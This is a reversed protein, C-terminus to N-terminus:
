SLPRACDVGNSAPKRTPPLGLRLGQGLRVPDSQPSSQSSHGLIGRCASNPFFAPALLPFFPKAARAAGNRIIAPGQQQRSSALADLRDRREVRCGPDRGLWPIAAKRQLRPRLPDLGGSFSAGSMSGQRNPSLRQREVPGHCATSSQQHSPVVSMANARTRTRAARRAPSNTGSRGTQRQARRANLFRNPRIGRMTVPSAQFDCSSQCERCHEGGSDPGGRNERGFRRFAAARQTCSRPRRRRAEVPM